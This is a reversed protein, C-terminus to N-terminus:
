TAPTSWACSLLATPRQHACSRLCVRETRRSCWFCFCFFLNTLIGYSAAPLSEGGLGHILRIDELGDDTNTPRARCRAPQGHASDIRLDLTSRRALQNRDVQRCNVVLFFLCRRRCGNPFISSFILSTKEKKGCRRYSPNKRSNKSLLTQFFFKQVERKWQWLDGEVIKNKILKLPVLLLLYLLLLVRKELAMYTEGLGEVYGVCRGGKTRRGPAFQYSTGVVTTSRLIHMLIIGLLNDLRVSKATPLRVQCSGCLRM